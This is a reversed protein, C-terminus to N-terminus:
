QPVQCTQASQETKTAPKAVSRACGNDADSIIRSNAAELPKGITRPQVRTELRTPLRTEVRKIARIDQGDGGVREGPLPKDQPPDAHLPAVAALLLLAMIRSFLSM